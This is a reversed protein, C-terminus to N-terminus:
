DYERSYEEVTRKIEQNRYLQSRILRDAVQKYLSTRNITTTSVSILDDGMPKQQQVDIDELVPKLEKGLKALSNHFLTNLQRLALSQQQPPEKFNSWLYNTRVM